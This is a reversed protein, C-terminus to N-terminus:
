HIAPDDRARSRAKHNLTGRVGNIVVHLGYEFTAEGSPSGIDEIAAALHPVSQPAQELFHQPGPNEPTELQGPSRRRDAEEDAVFGRTFAIITTLCQLAQGPGCGTLRQFADICGDLLPLSDPLPQTSAVLRAGDRHSLLLARYTRAVHVLWDDWRRETSETRVSEMWPRTLAHAMHDLLEQKNSFYWYLAPSQVDLEAALRRITLGDLGVDDLLRLSTSILLERDLRPARSRVPSM